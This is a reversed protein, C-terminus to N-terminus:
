HGYDQHFCRMSERGGQSKRKSRSFSAQRALALVCIPPSSYRSTKIFSLLYFISADWAEEDWAKM